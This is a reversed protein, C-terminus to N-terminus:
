IATTLEHPDHQYEPAVYPRAGSASSYAVIPSTPASALARRAIDSPTLPTPAGAVTSAESVQPRPAAATVAADIMSGDLIEVGDAARILHRSVGHATGTATP